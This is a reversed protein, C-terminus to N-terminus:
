AIYGPVLLDLPVEYRSHLPDAQQVWESTQTPDGGGPYQWIQVDNVFGELDRFRLVELDEICDLVEFYNDISSNPFHSAFRFTATCQLVRKSTKQLYSGGNLPTIRALGGPTNWGSWSICRDSLVKGNDKRKLFPGAM